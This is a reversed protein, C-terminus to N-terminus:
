QIAITVGAQSQSTGVQFVIPIAGGSRASSPVQVTALYVGVMGPAAYASMVPATQGDITASVPLVPTASANQPVTGDAILPNTVGMGTGFLIVTSGKAAPNSASNTTSDQNLIAGQGSGTANATFLGAM